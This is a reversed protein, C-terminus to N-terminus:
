YCSYYSADDLHDTLVHAAECECYSVLAMLSILPVEYSLIFCCLINSNSTFLTKVTDDNEERYHIRSELIKM